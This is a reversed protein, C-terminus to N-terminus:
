GAHKAREKAARECLIELVGDAERAAKYAADKEAATLQIPVQMLANWAAGRAICAAVLQVDTVTKAMERMEMNARRLQISGRARTISRWSNAEMDNARTAWDTRVVVAADSGREDARRVAPVGPVLLPPSTEGADNM